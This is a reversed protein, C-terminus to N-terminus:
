QPDAPSHLEQIDDAPSREVLILAMPRFAELMLLGVVLALGRVLDLHHGVGPEMLQRADAAELDVACM